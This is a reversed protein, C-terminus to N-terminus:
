EPIVYLIFHVLPVPTGLVSRVRAVVGFHDRSGSETRDCPVTPKGQFCLKLKPLAECAHPPGSPELFGTVAYFHGTETQVGTPPWKM